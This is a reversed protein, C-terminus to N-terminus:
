VSDLSLSVGSERDELSWKKKRLMVRHWLAVSSEHDAVSGKKLAVGHCLAVSREWDGAHCANGHPKPAFLSSRPDFVARFIACTVSLPLPSGMACLSVVRPGRASRKKVGGRPVAHCRERPVRGTNNKEKHWRKTCRRWFSWFTIEDKREQLWWRIPASISMKTRPIFIAACRAVSPLAELNTAWAPNIKEFPFDRLM